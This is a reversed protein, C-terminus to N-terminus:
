SIPEFAARIRAAFLESDWPGASYISRAREQQSYLHVEFGFGAIVRGNIWGGEDSLLYLLAPMVNAPSFEGAAWRDRDPLEDPPISETMRTLAQPLYLNCTAGAASMDRCCSATLGAVAAKAAAYCVYDPEGYISADSGINILRRGSGPSRSWHRLAARSTNFAGAVHVAITDSLDDLTAELLAGRRMVGAANVVIDLRGLDAVISDVLEAVQNEDAVDISSARASGGVARIQEAVDDAVAEDPGRGALDVGRDAVVVTTGRGALTLALECGIGRGGGTILAVRATSDQNVIRNKVREPAAQL